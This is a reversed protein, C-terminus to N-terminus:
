FQPTVAERNSGSTRARTRGRADSRERHELSSTLIATPADHVRPRRASARSVINCESLLGTKSARLHCLQCLANRHIGVLATSPWANPSHPNTDDIDEVEEGRAQSVRLDHGFQWVELILIYDRTDSKRTITEIM